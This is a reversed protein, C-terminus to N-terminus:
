DGHEAGRVSKKELARVVRELAMGRSGKVLIWEGGRIRELIRETAEEPEEFLFIRESACGGRLAGKRVWEAFDGTICLLAPDTRAAREGLELHADESFRGLELMDGLVLMRVAEGSLESFTELAAQMSQPNANYSDDVITFRDRRHPVFRGPAGEFLAPGAAIAEMTAGLAQALAIAALANYLNHKGPIRIETCIEEGLIRLRLSQGAGSKEADLLAIDCGAHFGFSRKPGNWGSAIDRVRPDDRNYLFMCESPMEELMEAKAVALADM